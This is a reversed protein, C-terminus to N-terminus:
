SALDLRLISTEEFPMWSLRSDPLLKRGKKALKLGQPKAGGIKM